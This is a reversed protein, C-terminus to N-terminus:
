PLSGGFRLAWLLVGGALLLNLAVRRTRAGLLTLLVGVLVVEAATTALDIAGAPEPVHAHPGVPPGATRTVVYMLVIAVNGGIGALAVWPVPRRLVLPAFLAQGAGAAVFFAGYAWWQRLHSAAYALHVWAVLLSLAAAVAPAATRPSAPLGAVPRATPAPPGPASLGAM